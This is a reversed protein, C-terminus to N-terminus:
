CAPSSSATVPLAVPGCRTVLRGKVVTALDSTQVFRHARCVTRASSVYLRPGAQVVAIHERELKLVHGGALTMALTCHEPGGAAFPACTLRMPDPLGDGDIDVDTLDVVNASGAPRRPVLNVLTLEGGKGEFARCLAAREPEQARSWGTVLSAALAIVVAARNNM